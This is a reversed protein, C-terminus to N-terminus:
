KIAVIKVNQLLLCINHYNCLVIDNSLHSTLSTNIHDQYTLLIFFM